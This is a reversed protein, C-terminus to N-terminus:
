TLGITRLKEDWGPSDSHDIDEDSIADVLKWFTLVNVKPKPLYYNLLWASRKVGFRRWVNGDWNLDM